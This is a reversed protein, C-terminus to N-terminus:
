RFRRVAAEELPSVIMVLRKLAAKAAVSAVAKLKAKTMAAIGSLASLTVPSAQISCGLPPRRGGGFDQCRGRGPKTTSTLFPDHASPGTEALVKSLPRRVWSPKRAVVIRGM